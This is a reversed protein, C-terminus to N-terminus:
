KSGGMFAIWGIFSFVDPQQGLGQAVQVYASWQCFVFFTIVAIIGVIVLVAIAIDSLADKM